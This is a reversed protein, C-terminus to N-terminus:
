NGITKQFLGGFDTEEQPTLTRFIKVKALTAEDPFINTDSVLSPDVRQMAEQAGVVPCIYDVYAAVTAAVEPDYYYNMLKEANAKHRAGIPVMMNDSSITGGSDPVAFAFKDDNESNLQTIDGSWGIV